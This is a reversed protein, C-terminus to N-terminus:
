RAALPDVNYTRADSALRERERERERERQRGSFLPMERRFLRGGGGSERIAAELIERKIRRRQRERRELLGDGTAFTGSAVLHTGKNAREGASKRRNQKVYVYAYAYV